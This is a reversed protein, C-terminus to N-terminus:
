QQSEDPALLLMGVTGLLAGILLREPMEMARRRLRADAFREYAESRPSRPRPDFAGAPFRRRSM